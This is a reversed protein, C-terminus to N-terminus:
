GRCSRDVGLQPHPGFDHSCSLDLIRIRGRGIRRLRTLNSYPDYVDLVTTRLCRPCMSATRLAPQRTTTAVAAPGSGYEIAPLSEPFGRDSPRYREGPTAMGIAQHPRRDFARQSEALDALRDLAIEAQM